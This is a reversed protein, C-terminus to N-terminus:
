TTHLQYVTVMFVITKAVTQAATAPMAVLAATIVSFQLLWKFAIFVRSNM